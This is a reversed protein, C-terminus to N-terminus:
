FTQSSEEFVAVVCAIYSVSATHCQSLHLHLTSSYTPYFFFWSEKRRIELTYDDHPWNWSKIRIMVSHNRQVTDAMALYSLGTEHCHSLQVALFHHNNVLHITSYGGLYIVIWCILIQSVLQAILYM